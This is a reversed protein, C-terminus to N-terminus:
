YSFVRGQEIAQALAVEPWGGAGGRRRIEALQLEAAQDDGSEVFAMGMYARALLNGPEADLALWYYAMGAERDGMKRTLFGLYTLVRGESPDSMAQLAELADGYRGGYAFERVARYRADDDLRVDEALVCSKSEAEWIQGDTCQRTTETPTPPDVEDETGVALATHPLGLALSLAVYATLRRM